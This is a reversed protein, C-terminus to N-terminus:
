PVGRGAAEEVRVEAIGDICVAAVEAGALGTQDADDDGCISAQMVETERQLWRVRRLRVRVNFDDANYSVARVGLHAGREGAQTGAQQISSSSVLRPGAAARLAPTRALRPSHSVKRSSSSM